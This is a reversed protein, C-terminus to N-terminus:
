RSPQTKWDVPHAFFLIAGAGGPLWAGPHFAFGRAVFTRVRNIGGAQIEEPGHAQLLADPKLSPRLVAIHGPRHPDPNAFVAVVLWGQNALTQARRM